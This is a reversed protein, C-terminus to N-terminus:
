LKKCIFQVCKSLKDTGRKFLAVGALFKCELPSCCLSTDQNCGKSIHCINEDSDFMNNQQQKQYKKNLKQNDWVSSIQHTTPLAQLFPSHQLPRETDEGLILMGLKVSTSQARVAPCSRETPKCFQCPAVNNPTLRLVLSLKVIFLSTLFLGAPPGALVVVSGGSYKQRLLNRNKRNCHLTASVNVQQTTDDINRLM